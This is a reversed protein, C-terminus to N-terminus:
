KGKQSSSRRWVTELTPKLHFFNHSVQSIVGFHLMQNHCTKKLIFFGATSRAAKAQLHCLLCCDYLVNGRKRTTLQFRLKEDRIDENFSESSIEFMVYDVIWISRFVGGHGAVAQWLSRNWSPSINVLAQTQCMWERATMSGQQWISPTCSQPEDQNNTHTHTTHQIYTRTIELRSLSLADCCAVSHEQYASKSYLVFSQIM